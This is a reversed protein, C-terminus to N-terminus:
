ARAFVSLCACVHVCVRVCVCMCVKESLAGAYSAATHRQVTTSMPAREIGGVELAKVPRGDSFITMGKMGRYLRHDQRFKEPHNQAEITRMARLGEDLYYVTM